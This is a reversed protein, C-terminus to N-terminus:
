PPSCSSRRDNKAETWLLNNDMKGSALHKKITRIRFYKDSEFDEKKLASKRYIDLIQSIGKDLDWANKFDPFAKKFKSFDVRYTREDASNKKLIEVKADPLCKNIKLAIDKVQYNESDFGTNFAECHINELPANLVRIFASCLDEIHIIPRWPTGDSMILIEKTIFGWAALNNVVLDLRLRPSIGYVTANRMFVPHFNKDALKAVGNEVDIKAKAYSTIPNLQGNENVPKEPDSSIGYISCSSAFVFRKIGLKKCKSVLDMSAKYNIENTLSPNIEGLPDNSLGALHIVADVGALDNLSVSRMDKTIQLDPLFENSLPFIDNGSYWDTDLGIVRYNNKKLAKTMVVGIYGMNGTVLVSEKKIQGM